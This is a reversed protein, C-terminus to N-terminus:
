EAWTLANTRATAVEALSLQISTQNTGDGMMLNAQEDATCPDANANDCMHPLGLFHGIEHSLSTVIRRFNANTNVAQGGRTDQVWISPPNGNRPGVSWNSGTSTARVFFVNMVDPENNDGAIQALDNFDQTTVDPMMQALADAVEVEGFDVVRFTLQGQTWIANVSGAGTRYAATNLNDILAASATMSRNPGITPTQAGIVNWCQVPIELAVNRATWAPGFRNRADAGADLFLGASSDSFPTASGNLFLRVREPRWGNTGAKRLGVKRIDSLQMGDHVDLDFDDTRGNEFDNRATNDLLWERTGVDLYVADDTQSYRRRSTTIRARVEDIPAGPDTSIPVPQPYDSAIWKLGHRLNAGAGGDLWMDVAGDYLSGGLMEEDNVWVQIRSPRWGDRGTKRLGIERIHHMRLGDINSITFTDTHGPEFDNRRTNNLQWERTGVSFLVRNDTGAASGPDTTTQVVMSRVVVSRDPFRPPFDTAQWVVGALQEAGSGQDLWVDVAGSYILDGNVRVRIRRPKWGDTGSKSLGIRRIDSTDVDSNIELDFTDTAGAVFDNRGENDLQWRRTGIDLFVRDETGDVGGNATTVEVVLDHVAAM